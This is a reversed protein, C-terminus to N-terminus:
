SKSSWQIVWIKYATHKALRNLACSHLGTQINSSPLCNECTILQKNCCTQTLRVALWRIAPSPDRLSLTVGFVLACKFM